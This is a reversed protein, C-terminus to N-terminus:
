TLDYLFCTAENVQLLGGPQMKQLLVFLLHYSIKYKLIENTPKDDTLM